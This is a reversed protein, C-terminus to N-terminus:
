RRSRERLLKEEYEVWVTRHLEHLTSHAKPEGWREIIWKRDTANLLALQEHGLRDYDFPLNRIVAGPMSEIVNFGPERLRASYPVSFSDIAAVWYLFALEEEYAQKTKRKARILSRLAVAAERFAAPLPLNRLALQLRKQADQRFGKIRDAWFAGADLDARMSSWFERSRASAEADNATDIWAKM